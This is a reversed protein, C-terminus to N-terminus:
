FIDQLKVIYFTVGMHGHDNYLCLGIGM